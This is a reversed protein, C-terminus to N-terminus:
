APVFGTEMGIFRNECQRLDSHQSFYDKFVWRPSVGWLSDSCNSMFAVTDAATFSPHSLSFPSQKGPALRNSILCAGPDKAAGGKSREGRGGGGGGM